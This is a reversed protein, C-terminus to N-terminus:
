RVLDLDALAQEVAKQRDQPPQTQAWLGLAYIQAPVWNEQLVYPIGIEAELETPVLFKKFGNFDTQGTQLYLALQKKIALKYRNNTLENLIEGTTLYCDYEEALVNPYGIKELRIYAHKVEHILSLPRNIPARFEIQDFMFLINYYSSYVGGADNPVKLDQYCSDQPSCLVVWFFNKPVPDTTDLIATQQDKDSIIARVRHQLYWDYLKAATPSQQALQYFEQEQADILPTSNKQHKKVHTVSQHQSLTYLGWGLGIIIVCIVLWIWVPKNVSTKSNKPAVTKALQRKRKKSM